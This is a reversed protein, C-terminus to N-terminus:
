IIKDPNINEINLCGPFNNQIWKKTSKLASEWNMISITNVTNKTSINNTNINTPREKKGEILFKIEIDTWALCGMKIIIDQLNKSNKKIYDFSIKGTYQEQKKFLNENDKLFFKKASEIFVPTLFESSPSLGEELDASPSLVVVGLFHGPLSPIPIRELGNDFVVGTGTFGKWNSPIGGQSVFKRSLDWKFAALIASSGGASLGMTFFRM